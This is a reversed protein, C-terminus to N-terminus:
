RHPSRNGTLQTAESNPQVLLWRHSIVDDGYVPLCQWATVLPSRVSGKSSYLHPGPVRVVSVLYVTILVLRVRLGVSFTLVPWSKALHYRNSSRIWAVNLFFLSLANSGKKRKLDLFCSSSSSYHQCSTLTIPLMQCATNPMSLDTASGVWSLCLIILQHPVGSLM